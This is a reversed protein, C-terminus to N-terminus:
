SHKLKSPLCLLSLLASYWGSENYTPLNQLSSSRASRSSSTVAAGRFASEMGRLSKRLRLLLLSLFFSLLRFQSSFFVPLFQSVSLSVFVFQPQAFRFPSSLTPTRFIRFQTILSAHWNGSLKPDPDLFKHCNIKPVCIRSGDHFLPFYREHSVSGDTLQDVLIVVRLTSFM